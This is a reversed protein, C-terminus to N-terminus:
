RLEEVVNRRRDLVRVIEVPSTKPRYIILYSFVPWFRLPEATLDDRVHGKRPMEAPGDM